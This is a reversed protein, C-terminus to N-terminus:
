YLNIFLLRILFFYFFSILISFSLSYKSMKEIKVMHYFYGLELLLHYIGSCLHYFFSMFIIFIISIFIWYVKNFLWLFSVCMITSSYFKFFFLLFTSFFIFVIIFVGSIRHFISFVSNWQANYITLHPAIPRIIYNKM